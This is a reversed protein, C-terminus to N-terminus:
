STKVSAYWAFGSRKTLLAGFGGAFGVAVQILGGGGCGLNSM